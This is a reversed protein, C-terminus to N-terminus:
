KLRWKLVENGKVIYSHKSINALPLDSKSDSYFENIVYTNYKKNLRQVKETGYCNESKFEGTNKDVISAIINDINIRNCIEKLLFEPSASIIVINNPKMNLFWKKIKCENKNWFKKVKEDVNNLGKLFSFFKTKFYIKKKIHLKYLIFAYTQIPLYRILTKDEKLCFIYFDLTSDGDYITNDFDFVNLEM